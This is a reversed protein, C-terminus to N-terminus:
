TEFHDNVETGTQLPLMITLLLPYFQIDPVLSIAVASDPIVCYM